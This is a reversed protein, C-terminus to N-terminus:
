LSYKLQELNERYEGSDRREYLKEAAATLTELIEKRLLRNLENGNELKKNNMYTRGASNLTSSILSEIYENTRLSKSLSEFLAYFRKDDQTMEYLGLVFDEQFRLDKFFMLSLFLSCIALGGVSFWSSVGLIWALFFLPSFFLFNVVTMSFWNEGKLDWKRKQYRKLKQIEKIM